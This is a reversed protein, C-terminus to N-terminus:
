GETTDLEIGYAERLVSVSDLVGRMWAYHHHDGVEWGELKMFVEDDSNLVLNICDEAVLKAFKVTDL